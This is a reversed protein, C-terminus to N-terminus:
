GGVRGQWCSPLFIRSNIRENESYLFCWTTCLMIRSTKLLSSLLVAKWYYGKGSTNTYNFLRIGKQELGNCTKCAQQNLCNPTSEPLLLLFRLHFRRQKTACVASKPTAQASCYLLNQKESISNAKSPSGPVSCQAWGVSLFSSAHAHPCSTLLHIELPDAVM